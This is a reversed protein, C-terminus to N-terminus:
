LQMLLAARACAQELEADSLHDFVGITSASVLAKGSPAYSRAVTSPFCANNVVHGGDGDLYLINEQRPLDAENTQFYVCCTGLGSGGAAGTAESGLLRRAEPGEVAVIIGQKATWTDGGETTVSSANNSTSQHGTVTEVRTKLHIAESPLGNALQVAVAGIGAAPLCNSGTALMRMVFTFLRSTVSLERNFFIGGLFPRFFRDIMAPSFGEQLASQM